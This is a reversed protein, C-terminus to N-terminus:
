KLMEELAAKLGDAPELRLDRGNISAAAAVLRRSSTLVITECRELDGVFVPEEAIELGLKRAGELVVERLIGPLIGDIAPTTWRGERRLFLNAAAAEGVRGEPSVMVAEDFGLVEARRRAELSRLWSTTKHEALIDGPFHFGSLVTLSPPEEADPAARWNCFVGGRGGVPAGEAPRTVTVRWLGDKRGTLSELAAAGDAIAGKPYGLAEASKQFRRLHRDLFYARGGQLRVTEFLGDGYLVGRDDCNAVEKIRPKM